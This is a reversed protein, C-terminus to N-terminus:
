PYPRLYVLQSRTTTQMADTRGARGVTGVTIRVARVADLASRNTGPPSALEVLQGSSNVQYYRLEFRPAGTPTTQLPGALAQLQLAGNAAAAFSRRVWWGLQSLGTAVDYRVRQYLFVADGPQPATTGPLSPNATTAFSSGSAAPVSRVDPAPDTGPNLTPCTSAALTVDSPTPTATRNSLLFLGTLTNTRFVTSDLGAPFIVVAQTPTLNCLIGWARPLYFEIAQSQGELLAQPPVARLESTMLELLGRANQQAEERANQQAAFDSHGRLLRFVIVALMAALTIAVLLEVVTFGKPVRRKPRPM